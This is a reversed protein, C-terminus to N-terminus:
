LERTWEEQVPKEGVILGAGGPYGGTGASARDASGGASEGNSLVKMDSETMGALEKGLEADIDFDDDFFDIYAAIDAYEAAIASPRSMSRYRNIDNLGHPPANFSWRKEMM